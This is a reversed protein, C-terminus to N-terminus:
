LKKLDTSGLDPITKANVGLDAQVKPPTIQPIIEKTVKKSDDVSKGEPLKGSTPVTQPLEKPKEEHIPVPPPPPANKAQNLGYRYLHFFGAFM